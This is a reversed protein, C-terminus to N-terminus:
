APRSLTRRLGVLGLGEMVQREARMVEQGCIAWRSKYQVVAARLMM